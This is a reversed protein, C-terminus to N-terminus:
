GLERIRRVLDTTSRSPFLPLFAIKGGYSEVVKAEPIPKGDPPAYEAGKCHVDPRLRELISEPTLEEFLIAYEVCALAAVIEVRDLAPVIPRSAGKLQRISDDGNVGVALVHGLSRATQLSHIHGIHLLDFCGNTWVFTKGEARAQKRVALLADWDVVKPNRPITPSNVLEV